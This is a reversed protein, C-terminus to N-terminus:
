ARRASAALLQLKDVLADPAVALMRSGLVQVLRHIAYAMAPVAGLLVALVLSRDYRTYAGNVRYLRLTSTRSLASLAAGLAMMLRLSLVHTYGLAVLLL